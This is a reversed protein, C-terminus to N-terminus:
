RPSGHVALGGDDEVLEDGSATLRARGDADDAVPDDFDVV